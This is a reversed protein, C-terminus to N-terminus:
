KLGCMRGCKTVDKEGTKILRGLFLNNKKYLDNHDKQSSNLRNINSKCSIKDLGTKYDWRAETIELSHKQKKRKYSIFTLNTDTCRVLSLFHTVCYVGM